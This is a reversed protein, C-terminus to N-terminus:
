AETALMHDTMQLNQEPVNKDCLFGTAQLQQKTFGRGRLSICM